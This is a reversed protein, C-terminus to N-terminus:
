WDVSTDKTRFQSQSQSEDHLQRSLIADIQTSKENQQILKLVSSEEGFLVKLNNYVLKWEAVASSWWTQPSGLIVAINCYQLLTLNEESRIFKLQLQIFAERCCDLLETQLLIM